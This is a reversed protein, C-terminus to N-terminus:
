DGTQCYLSCDERFGPTAANTATCSLFKAVPDVQDGGTEELYDLLCLRDAFDYDCGDEGAHNDNWLDAFKDCEGSGGGAACEVMTKHCKQFLCDILENGDFEDSGPMMGAGTCYKTRCSEVEALAAKEEAPVLAKCGSFDGDELARIIICRYFGPCSEYNEEPPSETEEEPEAIEGAPPDFKLPSLDTKVVCGASVTASLLLLMGGRLLSTRSM